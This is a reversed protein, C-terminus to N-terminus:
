TMRYLALVIGFLVLLRLMHRLIWVWAHRGLKGRRIWDGMNAAKKQNCSECAPVLNKVCNLDTIGQRRLKKQLKVDRSVKAVPYLHDITVRKKSVLRGCYACFYFGGPLPPHSRFFRTRYAGDRTGYANDTYFKLNNERCYSRLEELHRERIRGRYKRKEMRRLGFRRLRFHYPLMLRSGDVAVPVKMIGGDMM